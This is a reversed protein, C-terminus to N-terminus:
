PGPPAARGKPSGPPTIQLHAMKKAAGGSPGPTPSPPEGVPLPPEQDPSYPVQQSQKRGGRGKQQKTSAERVAQRVKIRAGKPLGIEALDPEKMMLLSDWDVEASVLHKEYKELGLKQMLATVRPDPVLGGHYMGRMPSQFYELGYDAYGGYQMM